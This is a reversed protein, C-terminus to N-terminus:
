ILINCPSYGKTFRCGKKRNEDYSLSDIDILFLKGEKDLM